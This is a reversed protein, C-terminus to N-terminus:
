KKKGKLKKIQTELAYEQARLEAPISAYIKARVTKLELELTNLTDLAEIEADTMRILYLEGGAWLRSIRIKSGPKAKMLRNNITKGFDIKQLNELTHVTGPSQSVWDIFHLSWPKGNSISEYHDIAVSKFKIM